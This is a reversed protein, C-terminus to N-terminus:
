RPAKPFPAEPVSNTNQFSVIRWNNGEKRLVQLQIGERPPQPAGPPVKAGDMTWRVHAIATVPDLVRVDVDTVTLTSDRFVWAFADTLKGEIESPSHWWWGLVNVVDGDAAFLAAYATADHQNWARAQRVQVERVAAAVDAQQASATLAPTVGLCFLLALRTGYARILSSERKHIPHGCESGKAHLRRPRRAAIHAAAVLSGCFIRMRHGERIIVAVWCYVGRYGLEVDSAM